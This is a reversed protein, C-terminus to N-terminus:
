RASEHTNDAEKIATIAIANVGNRVRVLGTVNVRKGAFTLL